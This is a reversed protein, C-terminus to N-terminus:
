DKWIIKGGCVGFFEPEKKFGNGKCFISINIVSSCDLMELKNNYCYLDGGIDGACGELSELQNDYCDYDGGVEQPGGILDKLINRDCGFDVGVERPSGLLSTLENRHCCFSGTVKGFKFPISTLSLGNLYVDGDVDITGDINITYNEINFYELKKILESNDKSQNEFIKYTRLHKM